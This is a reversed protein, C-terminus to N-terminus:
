GSGCGSLHRHVGIHSVGGVIGVGAVVRGHEILLVGDPLQPVGVAATGAVAAEDKSGTRLRRGLQHLRQDGASKGRTGAISRDM